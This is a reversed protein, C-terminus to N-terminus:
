SNLRTSKRDSKPAATRTLAVRIRFQDDSGLELIYHSLESMREVGDAGYSPWRVDVAALRETLIDLRVIEPRTSVIGLNQYWQAAGAFFKEVEAIDTVLLAGQDSLVLAPTVWGEAVLSFDGEGLAKGYQELMELIGEMNMRAEMGRATEGAAPQM